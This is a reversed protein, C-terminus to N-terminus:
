TLNLKKKLIFSDLFFLGASCALLVADSVGLILYTSQMDSLNFIFRMFTSDYNFSLSAISFLAIILLVQLIGTIAIYAVTSAIFKHSNFLQGICMCFYYFLFTATLSLIIFLVTLVVIGFDVKAGPTLFFNKFSLWGDKYSGWFAPIITAIGLVCSGLFWTIAPILKALINEEVSVPLTFMLYGENGLLNKYFRMIIVIFTTIALAVALLVYLSILSTYLPELVDNFSIFQDYTVEVSSSLKEALSRVFRSLISVLILMAYIPLFYIATARYEYKLLKSLM